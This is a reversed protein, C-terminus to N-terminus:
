VVNLADLFREALADDGDITVDRERWPARRTAWEPFQEATAFISAGFPRETLGAVVDGGPDISWSGGGPGTLTLALPRDRGEPRSGKLQNSLVALMWEIVVSMRNADTSPADRDLTPAVDFRLHTHQDFVMAGALLLDLRFTGLEALPVRLSALPSSTLISALRSVRSSWQAFENLVDMPAWARREDVMADNTREIDRSRLLALSAPTFLAHCGSGLHAVVDKVRWGAAASPALWEEATLDSCFQLTQARQDHLATIRNRRHTKAAISM